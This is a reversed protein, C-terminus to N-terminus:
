GGRGGGQIYLSGGSGSCSSGKGSQAGGKAPPQSARFTSAQSGQHLGGRRTRPCYRVYHGIDGYEFCGRRSAPQHSSGSHGSHRGRVVPRSSSGQSTHVSSLSNHGAYGAESALIAAHIPRSSQPHCGRGM